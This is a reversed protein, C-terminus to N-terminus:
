TGFQHSHVNVLCECARMDNEVTDGVAMRVTTLVHLPEVQNM